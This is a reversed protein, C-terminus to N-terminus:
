HANFISKSISGSKFLMVILVATIALIGLLSGNFDTGSFGSSMYNVVLASYAGVCVLMFFGQFALALLARLFNNGMTGWERNTFTAFPIPAVSLYLYIELMRGYLLVTVVVSMIGMIFSLVKIQIAIGILAGIDMTQLQVEYNAVAASIDVTETGTIVGATTTIVQKAVEFVAMSIDLTHSVLFIAIFAKLVFKFFIWTDFEHMNNKEILMSILEYCLVYAIILGAIPVIVTDAIGKVLTFITSNWDSPSQGVQTAVTGVSTNIGDYMGTMSQTISSILFQKVFDQLQQFIWM